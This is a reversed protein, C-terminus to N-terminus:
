KNNMINFKQNLLKKLVSLKYKKLKPLLLLSIGAKKLVSDVFKLRLKENLNAQKPKFIICGIWQKQKLDYIIIDVNYQQLRIQAAVNDTIVFYALNCECFVMYRRPLLVQLALLLPLKDESPSHPNLQYDVNISEIQLAQSHPYETAIITSKQQGGYLEVNPLEPSFRNQYSFFQSIRQKLPTNLIVSITIVLIISLVWWM